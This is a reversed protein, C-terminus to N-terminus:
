NKNDDYDLLDTYIKNFEERCKEFATLLKESFHTNKLGFIMNCVEQAAIPTKYPRKSRLADYVDAVAMIQACIPIAEGKLSHPYGTGDYKEHHHLIIHYGMDGYPTNQMKSRVAEFTKAGIITHTKMHEFEEPTLKGPKLLIKDEIGVKGIDHLAAASKITYIFNEDVEKETLSLQKALSECYYGVRELHLGTDTDRCESLKALALITADQAELLRNNIQLIENLQENVKKELSANLNNLQNQLRSIKLHTGIRESVEEIEFPKSIYDVGGNKFALVKSQVDDLASIFLVPINEHTEKIIRCAEFGCLHPLNIDMLILAPTCLKLAEIADIPDTFAATTCNISKLMEKLLVLNETTDDVIMILRNEESM